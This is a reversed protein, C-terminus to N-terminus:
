RTVTIFLSPGDHYGAAGGCDSASVCYTPYLEWQGPDAGQLVNSRQLTVSAGPAFSTDTWAPFDDPPQSGFPWAHATGNPRVAIQIKAPAISADAVEAYTVSANV